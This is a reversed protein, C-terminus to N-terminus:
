AKPVGGFERFYSGKHRPYSSGFRVYEKVKQWGQIKNLAVNIVKVGQMSLIDKSRMVIEWIEYKCFMIRQVLEKKDQTEYNDVFDIKEWKTMKYWNKPIDLSLFYEIQDVLPNVETHLEQIQKAVFIIQEDDLYLKEGEFYKYVAEAWVQNCQKKSFKFPSKVPKVEMTTLPWFRRNGTQSKLFDETNTSGFFVCQRLRMQTTREYPSRYRDKRASIFGKVKEIEAKAMGALEGIEIIWVGQIQEYAEKGQLMHLSFTDSFWEGGLKDLLHSKGQGEAGFFTVVTDYKVGPEMVRAVCAVLSKRTVARTYDNDEVGLYKHFLLDIREMGDWELGLLYERIPHFRKKESIVYMGKMMKAGVQFKYIKEIYNEFNAIDADTLGIDAGLERWPLRRKFIIRGEFENFFINDVFNPDNELILAVNNITSLYNGKRDVDMEDLWELEDDSSEEDVEKLKQKKRKRPKEIENEVEEVVEAVAEVEAFAAKANALKEEGIRRKVKLDKGAFDCMSLYSQRKNVPVAEDTDEDLFGYKHLRVLDFANCLVESTPDTSHHSYAFKDDYVVVGAATSGKKYTLRDSGVVEYEDELFNEVAETITYTRNFLGIMGPKDAPEGQVKGDRQLIKTEAAGLPWEAINQWDNYLGLVDDAVLAEGKQERFYYEGDSSSSPWYMVRSPQYGTHDFMDIGITEAIKRCIAIYEDNLVERDLPIVLRLRPKEPTHKHTSYVCAACTFQLCFLKWFQATALDADLTIVCRSLVASKLRRGGQIRGGVFGGIDKIEAQREKTAGIYETITESTRHTKRLREVLRDWTIKKVQWRKDRRYKGISIHLDMM